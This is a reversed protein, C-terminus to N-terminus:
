PVSKDSDKEPATHDLRCQGFYKNVGFYKDFASLM